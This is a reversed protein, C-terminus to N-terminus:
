REHEWRTLLERLLQTEGPVKAFYKKVFHSPNVSQPLGADINSKSTEFSLETCVHEM